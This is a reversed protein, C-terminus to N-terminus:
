LKDIDEEFADETIGERDEWLVHEAWLQLVHVGEGIADGVNHFSLLADGKLVEFVLGDM